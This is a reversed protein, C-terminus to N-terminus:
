NQWPLYVFFNRQDSWEFASLLHHIEDTSGAKQTLSFAPSKQPKLSCIFHSLNRSLLISVYITVCECLPTKCLGLFSYHIVVNLLVTPDWLIINLSLPWVCFIADQRCLGWVAFAIQAILLWLLTERPSSLSQPILSPSQFPGDRPGPAALSLHVNRHTHQAEVSLKCFGQSLENNAGTFELGRKINIASNDKYQFSTRILCTKPFLCLATLM